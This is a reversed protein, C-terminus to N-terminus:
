KSLLIFFLFPIGPAICIVTGNKQSQICSQTSKLQRAAKDSCLTEGQFLM